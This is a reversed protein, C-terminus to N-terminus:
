MVVMWAKWKKQDFEDKKVFEEGARAAEVSATIPSPSPSAM